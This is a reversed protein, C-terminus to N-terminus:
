PFYGITVGTYYWKIIEGFTKGEKALANAGYQSMGVGHGYGTVSFTIAKDDASVTFDASRLSLLSRLQSGTVTVGGVAITHVGGNSAATVAGFWSSPKGSLDAKPYAALFSEKFEQPTFVATSHYNPVEAGEPSTVGTLYPVSNGWVEVADLTRGASSSHFLAQIPEDEYLIVLGDTDEVASAIKRSNTLADTGWNVAAAAPDIYAQCCGSDSCLEAEPHNSTPHELRYYAYTRAAVAQAKLAEYEFSAPMEAAVVGKLYDAMSLEVVRDGELLLHVTREADKAAAAKTEAPGPDPPLTAVPAVSAPSQAAPTGGFALLPILFLLIVASLAATVVHKM